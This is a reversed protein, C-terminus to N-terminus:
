TRHWWVATSSEAGCCVGQLVLVAVVHQVEDAVSLSYVFFYQIKNKLKVNVIMFIDRFHILDYQPREKEKCTIKCFNLDGEPPIYEDCSIMM